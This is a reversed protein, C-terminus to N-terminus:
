YYRGDNVECRYKAFAQSLRAYADNLEDVSVPNLYEWMADCLKERIHRRSYLYYKYVIKDSPELNMYQMAIKDKRMYFDKFDSFRMNEKIM